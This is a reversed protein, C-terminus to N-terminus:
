TLMEDEEEMKSRALVALLKILGGRKVDVSGEKEMLGGAERQREM